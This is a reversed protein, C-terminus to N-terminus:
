ARQQGYRNYSVKDFRLEEKKYPVVAEDAYGIAVICEVVQHDPLGLLETIYQTPTM